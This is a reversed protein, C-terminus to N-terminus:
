DCASDTERAYCASAAVPRPTASSDAGLSGEAGGAVPAVLYYTSGGPPALTVTLDAGAACTRASHDWSGSRLTSLLGEYVVYDTADGSCSPGWTLVLDGSPDRDVALGAGGVSGAVSSASVAFSADSADGSCAAPFPSPTPSVLNARRVRVRYESGPNVPAVWPYTGDNPEAVSVTTWSTGGDSSIELDVEGFSAGSEATSNWAITSASGAPVSEGGNPSVITLTHPYLCHVADRDDDGLRPGRSGGYASSRMIADPVSSHGIGIAHGIEHTAVEALNDPNGLFCEFDNNFIVYRRLGRYFTEGNVDPGTSGSRWYGGIALVGSCGSPDSIDGYPDGFLVVHGPPYASAPSSPNAATFQADDDGVALAIRSEPVDTWAALAREIEAVAAPGNGLPNGAREVDMTLTVGSDVDFFRTPSSSSLTRFAQLEPVPGPESGLWAATAPGPRDGAVSEIADWELLPLETPTASWAPAAPPAATRRRPTLGFRGTRGERTIAPRVTVAISALDAVSFTEPRDTPRHRIRGRGDLDRTAESAGSESVPGVAFKGFFMGTTRLAGDATPELFAFVEEGVRYDPVADVEHVLDGYRGGPERLVVRDLEAPGRHVVTVDITVYTALTGAAADYGSATETVVGQVVLASRRSLEEPGVYISMSANAAPPPVALTLAALATATWPWSPRRM